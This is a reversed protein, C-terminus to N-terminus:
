LGANFNGQDFYAPHSQTQAVTGMYQNSQTSHLKKIVDDKVPCQGIWHGPQNCFNCNTRAPQQGGRGGRGGGRGRGNSPARYIREETYAVGQPQARSSDQAPAVEAAGHKGNKGKNKKGKKGKYNVAACEEDEEQEAVEAVKSLSPISSKHSGNNGNTVHNASRENTDLFIRLEGITCGKRIQRRAMEQLKTTALGNAMVAMGITSMSKIYARQVHVNIVETLLVQLRAAQAATVANAADAKVEDLFARVPDVAAPVADVPTLTQVYTGFCGTVRLGFNNATEGQKQKLVTWDISLDQSDRTKFFVTKFTARFQIYSDTIRAKLDPDTLLLSNKYWDFADDRLFSIAEAAARPDDWTNTRQLDDMRQIFDEPSCGKEAKNFFLPEAVLM